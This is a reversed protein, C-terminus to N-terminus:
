SQNHKDKYGYLRKLLIDPVESGEISNKNQKKSKPM